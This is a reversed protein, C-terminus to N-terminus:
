GKASLRRLEEEYIPDMRSRIGRKAL